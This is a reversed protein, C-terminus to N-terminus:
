SGPLSFNDSLYCAHRNSGLEVLKLRGRKVQLKLHAADRALRLEEISANGCFASWCFVTPALEFAETAIAPFDVQEGALM